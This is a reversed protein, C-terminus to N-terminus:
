MHFPDQAPNGHDLKLQVENKNFSCMAPYSFFACVCLISTHIDAYALLITTQKM